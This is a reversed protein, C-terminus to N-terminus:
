PQRFGQLLGEGVFSVQGFEGGQTVLELGAQGSHRGLGSGFRPRANGFQGLLDLGQLGGVAGCENGPLGHGLPGVLSAGSQV